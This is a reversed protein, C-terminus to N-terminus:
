PFSQMVCGISLDCSHASRSDLLPWLVSCRPGSWPSAMLVDVYNESVDTAFERTTAPAPARLKALGPCSDSLATFPALDSFENMAAALFRTLATLCSSLLSTRRIAYRDYGNFSSQAPSSASGFAIRLILAVAAGRKMRFVRCPRRTPVCLQSRRMPLQQLRDGGGPRRETLPLLGFNLGCALSAVFTM